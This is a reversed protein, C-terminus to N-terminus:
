LPSQVHTGHKVKCFPSNFCVDTDAKNCILDVLLELTDDFQSTDLHTDTVDDLSRLCYGGYFDSQRFVPLYQSFCKKKGFTM